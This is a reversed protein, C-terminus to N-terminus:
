LSAAAAQRLAALEARHEAEHQCLHHLVWEPTVDYEELHRPQRFDAATMKQYAELLLGRVMDLRAWHESLPLGKVSTLRGQENRVEYPFHQWVGQPLQGEMVEIGFWSIEIAAIHYLLTGISHGDPQQQWDM